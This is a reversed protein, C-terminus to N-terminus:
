NGTPTFGSVRASQGEIKLHPSSRAFAIPQVNPLSVSHTLEIVAINFFDGGRRRFASNVLINHPYYQQGRGLISGFLIRTKQSKVVLSAATVVHRYTILAGCGLKWQIQDQLVYIHAHWPFQDSKATSSSTDLSKTFDITELEAEDATLDVSIDATVITALALLLVFKLKSMKEINNRRIYFNFYQMIRM